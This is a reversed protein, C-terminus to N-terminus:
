VAASRGSRRRSQGEIPRPTGLAAAAGTGAGARAGAGMHRGPRASPRVPNATRARGPQRHTRRTRRRTRRHRSGSGARREARWRPPRRAPTRSARLLLLLRKARRAARAGPTRRGSSRDRFVRFWSLSLCLREPTGASLQRRACACACPAAGFTCAAAPVVARAGAHDGAPSFLREAPTIGGCAPAGGPSWAPLLPGRRRSRHWPERPHCARASTARRAELVGRPSRRPGVRMGRRVAAVAAVRVVRAASLNGLSIGPRHRRARERARAAALVRLVRRRVAVGDNRSWRPRRRRHHRPIPEYGTHGAYAPM